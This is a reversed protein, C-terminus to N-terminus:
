AAIAQSEFEDYYAQEFEAPPFNGIPELLWRNNFWYM